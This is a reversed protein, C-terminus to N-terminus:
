SSARQAPRPAYPADQHSRFRGEGNDQQDSTAQQRPGHEVQVGNIRAITWIMEQCGAKKEFALRPTFGGPSHGEEVVDRRLDAGQRTHLVDTQGKGERTVSRVPITGRGYRVLWCRRRAIHGRRREDWHRGVVEVRDTDAQQPPPSEISPVRSPRRSGGHDVVSQRAPQPGAFASAAAATCSTM